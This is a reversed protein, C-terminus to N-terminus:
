TIKKKGDIFDLVLTYIYRDHQDEYVPTQILSLNIPRSDCNEMCFFQVIREHAKRVVNTLESVNVDGASSMRHVAGKVCIRSTISAITREDADRYSAPERELMRALEMACMREQVIISNIISIISM